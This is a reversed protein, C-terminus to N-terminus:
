KEDYAFEKVAGWLSHPFAKEIEVEVIRGKDATNRAYFHVIKNTATRGTMQVRGNTDGQPDAPKSSKGEVLVKETQGCLRANSKETYFEQLKLLENLRELKEKEDMHGSFKSAPANPRDSYSFAFISDFEIQTVLDLTKQFDERTESPFGVIFDSSIAIDGCVRRLQAVREMYTDITYGRNMKKLIRDSGSQVPLHVHPCVKELDHVAHILEDSLDKPHSTAFRIRQIGSIRSVKELLDAFSATGNKQGYSNVNQGLLTVEVVGDRALREIERVIEEPPRSREKGRVYPVVCYTCFNECGQMITVFRSVKGNETVTSEPVSEYISSSTDTDAIRTSGSKVSRIHDAFRSFAQTGLVIDLHPLRRFAKEGEQQAVCGAMVSVLHPKKKKLKALTGLFSFAKEQAKDRISCTNCVVLEAENLSDTRAYGLNELVAALKESDYVNMQCGITYIYAKKEFRM